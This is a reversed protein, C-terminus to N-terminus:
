CINEENDLRFEPKKQILRFVSFLVDLVTHNAGNDSQFYVLNGLSIQVFHSLVMMAYRLVHVPPQFPFASDRSKLHQPVAGNEKM